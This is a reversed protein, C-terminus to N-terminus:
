PQVSHAPPLNVGYHEIDDLVQDLPEQASDPTRGGRQGIDAASSASLPKMRAIEPRVQIANDVEIANANVYAVAERAAEKRGLDTAVFGYLVLHRSGAADKLVQAGVLPFRHGRLYSTLAQSAAADVKYTQAALGRQPAGVLSM